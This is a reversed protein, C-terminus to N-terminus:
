RVVPPNEDAILVSNILVSMRSRDARHLTLAVEKLEGQLHLTQAHRTEYFIRSGGELLSLFSSGILDAEAHGTWRLLTDNADVIIGSATTTLLGCAAQRYLKEYDTHTM